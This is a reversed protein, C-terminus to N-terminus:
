AVFVLCNEFNYIRLDGMEQEVSSYSTPHRKFKVKQTHLKMKEIRCDSIPYNDKKVKYNKAM